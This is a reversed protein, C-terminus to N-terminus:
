DPRHEAEGGTEWRLLTGARQSDRILLFAPSGIMVGQLGSGAWLGRRSQLAMTM